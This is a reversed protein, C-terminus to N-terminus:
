MSSKATGAGKVLSAWSPNRPLFTDSIYSCSPIVSFSHRQAHTFAATCLHSALGQGRKRRPVFTHVMDMVVGGGGDDDDDRIIYQLYSQRDETEFRREKDNWVIKNAEKEEKGGGMAM